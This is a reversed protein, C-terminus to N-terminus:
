INKENKKIKKRDLMNKIYFYYYHGLLIGIIAGVITQQLTHCNMLVRTYMMYVIFISVLIFVYQKNQPLVKYYDIIHYYLFIGMFGALMSHGSPMGETNSYNNENIYFCGTNKANVPRKFRGIIPIDVTNYINSLYKGIPLCVVDKLIGTLIQIAFHGIFLYLVFVNRTILYVILLLFPATCPISRFFTNIISFEDTFINM